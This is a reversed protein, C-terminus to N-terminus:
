PASMCNRVRSYRYAAGRRSPADLDEDFETCWVRLHLGRDSSVLLDGGDEQGERTQVETGDELRAFGLREILPEVVQKRVRIRGGRVLERLKRRYTRWSEQFQETEAASMKPLLGAKALESELEFRVFPEPLAPGTFACDRLFDLPM